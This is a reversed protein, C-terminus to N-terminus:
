CCGPRLCLASLSGHMDGDRGNAGLGPLLLAVALVARRGIM